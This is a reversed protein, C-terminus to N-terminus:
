QPGNKTKDSASDRGGVVWGRKLREAGGTQGDPGGRAAWVGTFAADAVADLGSSARKATARRFEVPWGHAPGGADAPARLGEGEGLQAEGHKNERRDSAREKLPEFSAAGPPGRGTRPRVGRARPLTPFTDPAIPRNAQQWPHPVVFAERFRTRAPAASPRGVCRVSCRGLMMIVGRRRRTRRSQATARM